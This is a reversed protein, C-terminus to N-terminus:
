NTAAKFAVMQMVWSGSTIPAYASYSGIRSVVRDEAIDADPSTIVRSTFGAGPGTTISSVTNAGFILVNASKTKVDATSAMTGTGSGTATVDVPSTKDLGKYELVRIDAFAAPQNFKVTVTNMGAGAAAISRAYYISQSLKGPLITPGVARVYSNGKSDTVSAVSATTDNWGVVVVNLNGASQAQSLVVTVTQQPTQPVAYKVQVFGISAPGGAQGITVSVINSYGSRNGAADVALVRYRYTSGKFLGSQTLTKTTGSTTGAYVFGTCGAGSCREIRYSAVGVNDTSATWALTMSKTGIATATLGSPNSPPSTDGATAPTAASAINSYVSLNGAADGARVRYRYTTNAALGTDTFITGTTAALQVFATCTAGQCREVRYGTVGINDTSAAWSLNITSSSGATANASSPPTPPVTDPGAAPAVSIYNGRTQTNSGGPGTVQLSVSYTGANSYVHAPNQSTSSTGDGFTWAYATITGTSTNTFNLALPATGSTTSAAFQAVPVKYPESFAVENSFASENLASDYATVAFYYTAGEPPNPVIYANVNGVNIKTTYSHSVAGYHLMYGAVRPDAM